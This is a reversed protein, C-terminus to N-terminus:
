TGHAIDVCGTNMLIHKLFIQKGEKWQWSEKVNSKGLSRDEIKWNM